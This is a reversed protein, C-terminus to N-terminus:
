DCIFVKRQSQAGCLSCRHYSTDIYLLDNNKFYYCVSYKLSRRERESKLLFTHYQM